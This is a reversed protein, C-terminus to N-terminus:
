EKEDGGEKEDDDFTLKWQGGERVFHITEWKSKKEDNVELTAKDGNIKENRTSPLTAPVEKSAEEIGEKIVADLTTNQQKAREELMGFTGKSFLSRFAGVDKRKIAEYYSNFAETPTSAAVTTTTTTTTATPSPQAVSPSPSPGTNSTVTANAGNANTANKSCGALLTVAALAIISLTTVRIKM